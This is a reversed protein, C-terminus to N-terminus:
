TADTLNLTDKTYKRLIQAPVVCPPYHPAEQAKDLMAGGRHSRIDEWVQLQHHQCELIQRRPHVKFQDALVRDNLPQLSQVAWM